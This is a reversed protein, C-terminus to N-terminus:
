VVERVEVGTLQALEIVRRVSQETSAVFTGSWRVGSPTYHTEVVRVPSGASTVRRVAAALVLDIGARDEADLRVPGEATFTRRVPAETGSSLAAAAWEPDSGPPDDSV